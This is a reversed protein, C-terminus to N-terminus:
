YSAKRLRRVAYEAAPSSLSMRNCPAGAEESDFTRGVVVHGAKMTKWAIETAM